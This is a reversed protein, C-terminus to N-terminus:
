EVKQLRVFFFFTFVFTTNGSNEHREKQQLKIGQQVYVKFLVSMTAYWRESYIIYLSNSLNLTHSVCSNHLIVVVTLAFSKAIKVIKMLITPQVFQPRCTFQTPQPLNPRDISDIATFVM